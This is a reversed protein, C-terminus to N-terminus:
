TGGYGRYLRRLGAPAALLAALLALFVLYVAASMQPVAVGRAVDDVKGVTSVLKGGRMVKVDIGRVLGDLAQRGSPYTVTYTSQLEDALREYIIRLESAKSVHTYRGGTKDALDKLSMEDIGDDHLDISLNEFVEVLKKEDGIHFYKGNTQEAMRKMVDEAIEHKRGLGLMFLPLEAEKAREIVLRDSRRSGPAEDKGDTLVVVAKKGRPEAAVVTEIGAYTADYLLTGGHAALADIRKNLVKEDRTFPQPRGVRGSFPLLTTQAGRRRAMLNVFRRAAVKLADIKSKDDSESAKGMMSGSHDLVLVTTVQENKGPEGVGLTYVPVEATVAEKVTEKLTRTSSMDVGDTMLVVARRGEVGKLMRVAEVTADLYATGGLPEAAEILGRLKRRHEELKDPARAPKESVRILHDFLILGVDARRDLRDLFLLAAKKAEEMKNHRAMSGSIDMVLVITLKQARPVQIELDRVRQGDEEVVIEERPIDAVLAQDRLRRVRFRVTVKRKGDAPDVKASAKSEIEVKYEVGPADQASTPTVALLGLGAALCLLVRM